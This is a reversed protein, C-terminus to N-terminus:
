NNKLSELFQILHGQQEQLAKAIESAQEIQKQLEAYRVKMEQTQKYWENREQEVKALKNLM